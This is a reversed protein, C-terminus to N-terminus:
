AAARRAADVDLPRVWDYSGVDTLSPPAVVYGGRTRYDIHAMSRPNKRAWPPPPIYLHRGGARPTSVVGLVDPLGHWPEDITPQDLVDRALTVNGAAGDVDIVDVLHGTAIGINSQPSAAWWARVQEVDSTADLCGRTRAHPMKSRPSLPFVRLDQEAYWLAAAGLSPISRREALEDLRAGYYAIADSDDADIAARLRTEISDIDLPKM